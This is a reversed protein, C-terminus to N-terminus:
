FGSKGKWKCKQVFSFDTINNNGALYLEELVGGNNKNMSALIECTNYPVKNYESLDYLSNYQLNLYSLNKLSSLAKIGKNLQCESISLTNLNELTDIWSIDTINCLTINLTNLSKIEKIASYDEDSVKIKYLQLETLNELSAIKSLNSVSSIDVKEPNWEVGGIRLYKLNTCKAIKDMNNLAWQTDQGGMINIKEISDYSKATELIGLTNDSCHTYIEKISECNRADLYVNSGVGTDVTVISSPLIISFGYVYMDKYITVKTLKSLDLTNSGYSCSGFGRVRLDIYTLETCNSLTSLTTWSTCMLGAPQGNTFTTAIGAGLRNLTPQLKSLDINAGSIALMRMTPIDNLLELGTNKDLTSANTSRVDLVSLKKLKSLFSFDNLDTFGNLSLYTLQPMGSLLINITNNLEAGSIKNAGNYISTGQLNLEIVNSYANIGLLISKEVSQNSLNLVTSNEDLMLLDYKNSISYDEMSRMMEKTNIISNTNLNNCGKLYLHKLNTYSKVYDIWVINGNYSINLSYLNSFIPEYVYDNYSNGSVNALLSLADQDINIGSESDLDKGLQNNEISLYKLNTSDQIGDLSTINNYRANLFSLSTFGRLASLSSIKNGSICLHTISAKTTDTLMSLPEITTINGSGVNEHYENFYYRSDENSICLKRLSIMDDNKCSNCFKSLENDNSNIFYLNELKKMKGIASYDSVDASSNIYVTTLNPADEIGNLNDLKTNIKITTLSTFLELKSIDVDSNSVDITQMSRIDSFTIDNEKGLNKTWTDNASFIVRSMDTLKANDEAGLWSDYGNSCYFVKLDSNIGYIDNFDAYITKGTLTNDGGTLANRVEEPLASKEIFYYEKYTNTSLFYYDNNTAKQFFKKTSATNILADLKNDYEKFDDYNEIYKEQFFEELVARSQAFNAEKAKSIIGNEGITANLSVGALILMVIISIVLAILTIGNQKKLADKNQFQKGKKM